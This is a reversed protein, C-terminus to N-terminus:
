VKREKMQNIIMEKLLALQADLDVQKPAIAQHMIIGDISAFLLIALDPPLGVLTTLVEHYDARTRRILDGDKDEELHLRYFDFAFLLSNLIAAEDERIHYFLLDLREEVSTNGKALEAIQSIDNQSLVLAVQKFLEKKSSFYHYLTGTSIGIEEAIQRMSINTYGYRAFLEFCQTLLELRYADHNVIKPM